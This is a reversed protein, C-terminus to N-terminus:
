VGGRSREPPGLGRARHADADEHDRGQLGKRVDRNRAPRTFGFPYSVGQAQRM